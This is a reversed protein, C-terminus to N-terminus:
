PKIQLLAQLGSHHSSSTQLEVSVTTQTSFEIRIRHRHPDTLEGLLEAQLHPREGPPIDLLLVQAKQFVMHEDRTLRILESIWVELLDKPTDADLAIKERLTAGIADESISKFLQDAADEFLTKPTIGAAHLIM